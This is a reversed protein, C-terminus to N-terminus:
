ECEYFHMEDLRDLPLSVQFIREIDVLAIWKHEHPPDIWHTVEINLLTDGDMWHLENGEGRSAVVFDGATTKVLARVGVKPWYDDKIKLWKDM